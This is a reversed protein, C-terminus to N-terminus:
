FRIRATYTVMVGNETLMTSGWGQVSSRVGPCTAVAMGWKLTIGDSIHGQSMQSQWEERM